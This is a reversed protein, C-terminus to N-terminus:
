SEQLTPLYARRAATAVRGHCAGSQHGRRSTSHQASRLRRLSSIELLHRTRSMCLAHAWLFLGHRCCCVAPCVRPVHMHPLQSPYLQQTLMCCTLLASPIGHPLSGCRWCARTSQGVLVHALVGPQAFLVRQHQCSRLRASRAVLVMPWSAAAEHRKGGLLWSGTRCTMPRVQACGPGKLVVMCADCVCASHCSRSCGAVSSSLKGPPRAPATPVESLRVYCALAPM